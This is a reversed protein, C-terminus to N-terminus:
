RSVTVAISRPRLKVTSNRQRQRAIGPDKDARSQGGVLRRELPAYRDLRCRRVGNQCLASLCNEYLRGLERIHRNHLRATRLRFKGQNAMGGGSLQLLKVIQSARSDSGTQIRFRDNANTVPPGDQNKPSNPGPACRAGDISPSVICECRPSPRRM